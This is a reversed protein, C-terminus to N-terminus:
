TRYYKITPIPVFDYPKRFNRAKFILRAIPKIRFFWSSHMPLATIISYRSYKSRCGIKFIEFNVQIEDAQRGATLGPHLAGSIITIAASKVAGHRNKIDKM